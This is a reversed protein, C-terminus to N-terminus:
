IDVVVINYSNRYRFNTKGDGLGRSIILRTGDVVYEGSSYKPLFGQDPSYIGRGLVRGQGGHTHGALVLDFGGYSSILEPRHALLIKKMRENTKLEVKPKVGDKTGYLYVKGGYLFLGENLLIKIGKKQCESLYYELHESGIEHNGIVGFIPAIQTLVGVTRCIEDIDARTATGDFIDGTLAIMDPRLSEVSRVIEGTPVGVKPYHLDSLHVIRKGIRNESNFIDVALKKSQFVGRAIATITVALFLILVVAAKKKIMSYTYAIRGNKFNVKVFILM